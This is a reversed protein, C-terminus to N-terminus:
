SGGAQATQQTHDNESHASTAYQYRRRRGLLVKIGGHVKRRSTAREIATEIREPGVAGSSLATEGVAVSLEAVSPPGDRGKGTSKMVWTGTGSSKAVM